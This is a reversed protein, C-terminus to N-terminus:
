AKSVKYGHSQLLRIASQIASINTINVGAWKAIHATNTHSIGYTNGKGTVPNVGFKGSTLADVVTQKDKFGAAILTNALKRTLGLTWNDETASRKEINTARAYLQSARSPSIGISQGIERFTKGTKRMKLVLLQNENLM